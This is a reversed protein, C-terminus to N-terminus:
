PGVSLTPAGNVWVLGAYAQEDGWPMECGIFVGPEFVTHDCHFEAGTPPNFLLALAAFLMAVM